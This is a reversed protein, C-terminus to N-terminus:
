TDSGGSVSHKWLDAYIGQRALLEDHNGTEVIRGKDMVLIRDAQAATALRHAVIVSTRNSMLRTSASLITKETAPDLTSTAEDLLMLQPKVLEARALAILQRQGSSLGRGDEGVPALFGGPIAAIARLAGICRAAHIVDNPTANPKGYAINSAITGAFLHSEQPVFGLSGRWAALTVDRIDTDVARVAGATPDYFRALLKVVTSKGAGTAGVVAVTSGEDITESVEHLVDVGNSYAFTVDDISLSGEPVHTQQGSDPVSTSQSLLDSIRRLGVEAQQYMDFVQSLQQIPAFLLNMYIMFAVLVGATVTGNLVMVAGVGVVAASALESLANIGPFYISVVTQAQMRLRRYELASHTFREVDSDQQNYVQSTRIANVLEQFDANVTSIQGRAESYLRSSIRRFIVTAVIVIPLSTLAVLALRPATVLLMISVGLLTAGSVIAQALGEQLFKSLSDIDTTMRTMIRGSQTTEFYDLGLRQVHAFSRLRLGYLLREGARSTLITNITSAVWAAVVIILGLVTATVLAGTDKNGVGADIAHRVLSPFVVDATVLVCLTAIIAVLLWKVTGLLGRLSFPTSDNRFSGADIKPKETAPPLKEVMALVEPTAPMGATSSGQGLGAGLGSGALAAGSASLDDGATAAAGPENMDQDAPWLTAVDPEDGDDFPVSADADHRPLAMLESFHPSSEQLEDLTGYATVTGAEVLAIQDALALTSHRHAILLLTVSGKRAKLAAIIAAETTADIASTADDLILVRAGSVLARALAIRQRQGGSLTLGREGAVTNYGDELEMIFDHASADKAASIIDEDTARPNALAINERVSRSYLFPEDFVASVARRLDYKQIDAINVSEYESPTRGVPSQHTGVDGGDGTNDIGNHTTSPRGSTTLRITGKSAPYFGEALQVLMSKGAGPPGVLVTTEGPAIDLSFHNLIRDGSTGSSQTPSNDSPESDTGMRTEADTQPQSFSVNDFSIGLPGDPIHSPFAPDSDAELDVVDFVRSVSSLAMQMSIAMNSLMRCIGTLTTLYTSFALFIGITIHGNLALWGGIAVNAVLALNPLEALTPLFKAQQHAARMQLAYLTRGLKDLTTIEREEQAFGKVVRVGTVTQEVHTAVNAAQQQTTWTSAFISRKSWLGVIVLIPTVIVAALSMQWSLTFMVVLIIAFKVVSGAALPFMALLAQVMNLDSISRSVVQGTRIDDQDKGGLRVLSGLVRIRLEHQAWQSMQGALYRRSFQFAYRVLAIVVMVVIVATLPTWGTSSTIWSWLATPRAQETATDVARATVLPILIEAITVALTAAMAGWTYYPHIMCVHFLGRLDHNRPTDADTKESAVAGTSTDKTNTTTTNRTEM